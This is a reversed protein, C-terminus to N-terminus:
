EWVARKPGPRHKRSRSRVSIARLSICDDFRHCQGPYEVVVQRPDFGPPLTTSPQAASYRIEIESRCSVSHEFLHRPDDLRGHRDNASEIDCAWVECCASQRNSSFSSGKFFGRKRKRTRARLLSPVPRQSSDQARPKASPCLAPDDGAGIMAVDTSSNRARFGM